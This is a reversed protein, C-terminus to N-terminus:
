YDGGTDDGSAGGEPKSGFDGAEDGVYGDEVVGFGNGGGGSSQQLKTIQAKALDLRVGAIKSSVTSVGRMSFLTRGESGSWVQVDIIKNASDRLEIKINKVGGPEKASKITANQKFTFRIVGTPNGEDDELREFPLYVGWKKAEGPKMEQTYEALYAVSAAEIRAAVSEAEAGSADLDTHFLGDANYKTDAKNLWPHVFTGLPSFHFDTM